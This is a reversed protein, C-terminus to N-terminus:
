ILTKIKSFAQNLKKDQIDISMKKQFKSNSFILNSSKYVDDIKHSNIKEFYYDWANLSNDIKKKENYITTFNEMDIIPIFKNEECFKLQNLVFTLNSFLGAGPSRNIIFFIKNPNKNGFSLYKLGSIVLFKNINFKKRFYPKPGQNTLYKKFLNM